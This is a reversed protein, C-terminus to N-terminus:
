GKRAGKATHLKAGHRAHHGNRENAGASERPDLGISALSHVILAAIERKAEFSLGDGPRLFNDFRGILGDPLVTLKKLREYLM